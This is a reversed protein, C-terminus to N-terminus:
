ENRIVKETKNWGSEFKRHHSVCLVILNDQSNNRSDYYDDIHHVEIKGKCNGLENFFCKNDADELAEKRAQEWDEGRYGNRHEIDKSRGDIYNPNKNGEPFPHSCFGNLHYKNGIMYPRPKGKNGHGRNNGICKDHMKKKTIDSCPHGEYYVKMVNSMNENMEETRVYVGKPM